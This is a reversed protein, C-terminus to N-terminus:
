AYDGEDEAANTAPAAPAASSAATGGGFEEAVYGLVDELSGFALEDSKYDRMPMEGGNKRTGERTKSCRVIFGGNAAKRIDVSDTKWGADTAPPQTESMRSASEQDGGKVIGRQTQSDM